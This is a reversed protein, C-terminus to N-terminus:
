SWDEVLLLPMQMMLAHRAHPNRKTQSVNSQLKKESPQEENELFLMIICFFAKSIIFQASGKNYYALSPRQKFDFVRRLKSYCLIPEGRDCASQYSLFGSFTLKV